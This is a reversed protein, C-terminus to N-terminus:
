RYSNQFFGKGIVTVSYVSYPFFDKDANVSLSKGIYIEYSHKERTKAIRKVYYFLNSITYGVSKVKIRM